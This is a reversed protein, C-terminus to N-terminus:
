QSGLGSSFSGAPLLDKRCKIQNYTQTIIIHTHTEKEDHLEDWRVNHSVVVYVEILTYSDDVREHSLEPRQLPFDLKLIVATQEDPSKSTDESPVVHRSSILHNALHLLITNTNSVCDLDVNYPSTSDRERERERNIDSQSDKACYYTLSAKLIQKEKISHM